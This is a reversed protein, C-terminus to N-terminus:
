YTKMAFHPMGADDFEDGFAVFGLQGCSHLALQRRGAHLARPDQRLPQQRRAEADDALRLRRRFQPGRQPQKDIPQHPRLQTLLTSERNELRASTEPSRATGTPPKGRRLLPRPRLARPAESFQPTILCGASEAIPNQSHDSLLGM